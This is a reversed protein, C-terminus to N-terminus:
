KRLVLSQEFALEYQDAVSDWNYKDRLKQINNKIKEVQVENRELVDLANVVDNEDLFFNGDEGLVERNFANDHACIMCQSGMAELLAPNTGGVSHGHFYLHAYHRLSNIREKKFTSKVFRIRSDRFKSKLYEGYTTEHNGVVLTIRDSQSKQVGNLIIELNNEPELRAVILNYNGPSVNYRELVSEDPKKFIEAGYPIYIVQANYKNELYEKIAEADAILLNSADVAWKEAKRLFRKVRLSYKGRKWEMGDMNTIIAPGKPLMWSWISNSTYGLQLIIDLNRWRADFIANFDYFFQGSTGIRHEPDYKHILEVGEFQKQQYPHRHSNYVLVEHGKKVWRVALQQACEEFGGYRNPIGRTGIIGIKM